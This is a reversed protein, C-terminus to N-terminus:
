KTAISEVNSRKSHMSNICNALLIFIEVFSLISAGILLGMQGGFDSVISMVDYKEEETYVFECLNKYYISVKLLNRMFERSSTTNEAESNYLAGYLNEHQWKPPWPTRSVRTEYSEEDCPLQCNCENMYNLADHYYQLSEEYSLNRINPYRDPKMFARMAKSVVGYRRYAILNLCSFYCTGISAKGPFVNEYAEQGTQVCNSPFPSQKRNITNKSIEISTHFGAPLFIGEFGTVHERADHLMVFLGRREEDIFDYSPYTTRYNEDYYLIARFGSRDGGTYQKLLQNRNLTFCPWVNPLFSFNGPFKIPVVNYQGVRAAHQNGPFPQNAFFIRCFQIFYQRNIENKFYKKSTFSCNKPLKQEVPDSDTATSDLHFINTNCFTIAPLSLAHKQKREIKTDVERKLHKAISESATYLLVSFCAICLCAWIARLQKSSSTFIRSVGHITLSAVEDNLNQKSKDNAKREETM